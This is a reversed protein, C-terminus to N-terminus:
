GRPIPSYAEVLQREAAALYETLRDAAETRRGAELHAAIIGNEQLYPRHFQEPRGMQHFFLRMEALLLDMQADLRPSGALAVVGRHFHQNASAVAEWDGREAAARGEDVASRIAHLHAPDHDDGHLVAAPEILRRVRYVDRVDDVRPTAVVVGRNPERVLIREAVLQSLAERLTNRSVGLAEALRQEPLRTGSRLHGEVVQERVVRAARDASTSMVTRRRRRQDALTDLVADLPSPDRPPADQPSTPAGDATM